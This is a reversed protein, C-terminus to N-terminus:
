LGFMKKILPINRMQMASNVQAQNFMGKNMCYQMVEYPNKINNPLDVHFKDKLFQIRDPAQQMQQYVNMLDNINNM